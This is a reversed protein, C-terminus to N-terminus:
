RLTHLGPAATDSRGPKRSPVPASGVATLGARHCCSVCCHAAPMEETCMVAWLANAEASASRRSGRQGLMVVSHILGPKQGAWKAGCM